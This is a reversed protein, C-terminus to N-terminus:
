EDDEDNDRSLDEDDYGETDVPAVQVPELSVVELDMGCEVCTIVEGEDVLDVDIELPTDCEPCLTAMNLFDELKM